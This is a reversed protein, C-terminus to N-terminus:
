DAYSGAFRTSSKVNPTWLQSTPGFLFALKRIQSGIIRMIQWSQVLTQKNQLGDAHRRFDFHEAYLLLQVEHLHEEWHLGSQVQCSATVRGQRRPYSGNGTCPPSLWASWQELEGVTCRWYNGIVGSILPTSEGRPRAPSFAPSQQEHKDNKKNISRM